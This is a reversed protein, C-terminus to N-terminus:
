PRVTFELGDSLNTTGPAAPDRFWAQAQVLQGSVFPNGLATPRTARFANWDITLVGQCTDSSGGSNQALTRQVPSKVCLFSSNNTSWPAANRGTIGYFILGLRNGEVQTATLVFGSTASASAVGSATLDAFCFSSTLGATCYSTPNSGGGDTVNGTLCLGFGQNPTPVNTATVTFSWTGVTPAQLAVREVNNKLDASGATTSWGSAFVNGRYVAGTPSTVTLDLNNVVPNSANTSGPADHWALTVELPTTSANVQFQRVYTAGTVLGQAKRVDVAIMKAADGTFFLSEDLNPRGWGEQNSPYGSISTMDQATNVLVAKVLAGTPTFANAVVAAGTPYFGDMFYERVLAAAATASPCAMSTGTLSTTGCSGTSASVTGCGPTMVEPKRRGDATPGTGGSCFSNVNPTDQTAGVALLNKANEPNKLTSTNTTSFLVLNDENNWQFTDISNCLSDYATTADNGWSNTHVRAGVNAHAVGTTNFGSIPLETHALKALYALGRNATSGNVPQANGAATGATHTGHSDSTGSGNRYVIKRHTPGVPAGTPDSFYCSTSSLLGDVHGIVQGQGNIGQSWVRTNGSINTQVVWVISDNRLTMEPAPEIWQMDRARALARAALPSANVRVFWRGYEEWSEEITAGSASVQEALVDFSTGPFGGIVLPRALAALTEDQSALLLRPEIRYAPHFDGTWVHAAVESVATRVRADGRVVFAYNPIYDLLEAGAAALEARLDETIAGSFQALFYGADAQPELALDAPLEPLGRSTDFEAYSLSLWRPEAALGNAEEFTWGRQPSDPLKPVEQAFAPALGLAALVIALHPTRRM